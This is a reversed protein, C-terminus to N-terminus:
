NKFVERCKRVDNLIETSKKKKDKDSFRNPPALQVHSNWSSLFYLTVWIPKISKDEVM